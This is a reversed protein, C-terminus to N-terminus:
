MAYQNLEAFLTGIASVHIVEPITAHQRVSELLVGADDGISLTSLNIDATETSYIATMIESILSLRKSVGLVREVQRHIFRGRKMFGHASSPQAKLRKEYIRMCEDSERGLSSVVQQLAEQLTVRPEDNTPQNSQQTVIPM